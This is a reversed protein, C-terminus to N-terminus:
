GTISEKRGKVSRDKSEAALNSELDDWESGPLALKNSSTPCTPADWAEEKVERAFEKCFLAFPEVNIHAIWSVYWPLVNKSHTWLILM